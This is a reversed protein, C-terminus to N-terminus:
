LGSPSAQYEELGEAIERQTALRCKLIDRRAIICLFVESVRLTLSYRNETEMSGLVTHTRGQKQLKKNPMEAVSGGPRLFQMKRAKVKYFKGVELNEMM